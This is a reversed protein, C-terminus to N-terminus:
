RFIPAAPWRNRASFKADAAVNKVSAVDSAPRRPRRQNDQQRFHRLAAPQKAAFGMQMAMLFPGGFDINFVTHRDVRRRSFFEDHHASLDGDTGL